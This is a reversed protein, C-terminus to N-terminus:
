LLFIVVNRFHEVRGPFYLVKKIHESSYNKIKDIWEPPPLQDKNDVEYVGALYGKKGAVVRKFGCYYVSDAGFGEFLIKDAEIAWKVGNRDM